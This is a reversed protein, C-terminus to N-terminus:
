DDTGTKFPIVVASKAYQRKIPTVKEEAPAPVPVAVKAAKAEETTEEKLSAKISRKVWMALAASVFLFAFFSHAAFWLAFCVAVLWGLSKIAKSVLQKPM